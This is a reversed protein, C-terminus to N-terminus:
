SKCPDRSTAEVWIFFYHALVRRCLLSKTRSTKGSLSVLHLLGTSGFCSFVIKWSRLFRSDSLNTLCLTGPETLLRLCYQQETVGLGVLFSTWCDNSCHPLRPCIVQVPRGLFDTFDSEVSRSSWIHVQPPYSSDGNLFYDM